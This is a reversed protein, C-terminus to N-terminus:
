GNAGGRKKLRTNTASVASIVGGAVVATALALAVVGLTGVELGREDTEVVTAKVVEGDREVETQYTLTRTRKRASVPKRVAAGAKTVANAAGETVAVPVPKV